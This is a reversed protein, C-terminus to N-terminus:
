DAHYSELQGSHGTGVPCFPRQLFGTEGRRQSDLCNKASAHFGLAGPDSQPMLDVFSTRGGLGPWREQGLSSMVRFLAMLQARSRCFAM